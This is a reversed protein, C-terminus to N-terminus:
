KSLQLKKFIYARNSYSTMRSMKSAIATVPESMVYISMYFANGSDVLTMSAPWTGFTQTGVAGTNSPAASDYQFGVNWSVENTFCLRYNGTTTTPKSVFAANWWQAVASTVSISGTNGVKTCDWGSTNSYLGLQVNTPAAAYGYFYMSAMLGAIGAYPISGYIYTQDGAVVSGGATTYGFTDGVPTIKVPYTADALYIPDVSLTIIGGSVNWNAWTVQPVSSSDICKMRYLHGIKGTKYPVENPIYVGGQSKHYFAISNVIHEPRICHKDIEESTLPAQIVAETNESDYRLSISNVMPKKLLTIAWDYGGDDNFGNLEKTPSWEFRVLSNEAIITDGDFTPTLSAIGPFTLALSSPLTANPWKSFKLHPKFNDSLRDGIEAYHGNSFTFRYTNKSVDVIPM